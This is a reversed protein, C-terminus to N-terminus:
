RAIGKERSAGRMPPREGGSRVGRDRDSVPQGSITLPSGPMAPRIATLEYLLGETRRLRNELPVVVTHVFRYKRRLRRTAAVAEDGDLLRASAGLMSGTPTGRLTCPAILVQPFNRLRRVKAANAPTGFYARDGDVAVNVPTDVWSGDRKQTRLLMAWTTTFPALLHESM